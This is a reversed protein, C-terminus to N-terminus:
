FNNAVVLTKRLREAYGSAGYVQLDIVYYGSKVRNNSDNTGDWTFFSESGLLYHHALTRVLRGQSDFIRLSAQLGTRGAQYRITVYDARGDGSPMIVEPEMVLAGGALEGGQYRQSNPLGPTGYNVTSAASMWNAAQNTPADLNIRELSVGKTERVFSSHLSGSYGFEDIRLGEHDLLAISDGTNRFPPLSELQLLREPPTAPFATLVDDPRRTFVLLGEPPLILEERSILSVAKIGNEYTALQWHQLKIFKNSANAIEVWEESNALPDYMLENLVVDGPQAEEPVAITAQAHEQMILNGSCDTLRHFSLQYHGSGSISLPEALRILLRDSRGGSTSVHQIELNPRISVQSVSLSATDLAENFIALINSPDLAYAQLLRPGKLDPKIAAISNKAAPTGGATAVSASWNAEGGCPNNMDIRELSWGGAAKQSNGYWRQGYAVRDLLIGEPSYLSLVDAHNHLSPWPSLGLVPGYGELMASEKAPTLMVYAEPALSYAPLATNRSEDAFRVGSLEVTRGSANFIEIWEVHPLLTHDNPAAHIESILLDYTQLEYTDVYRFIAKQGEASSGDRAHVPGLSITYELGAQLPSTNLRLERPNDAHIHSARVVVGHDITFLSPNEASAQDLPQNFCLMLEQEAKPRASLLRFAAPKDSIQFQDILLRAATGEGEGRSVQLRLVAAPQGLVNEPIPLLYQQYSTNANPFTPAAGLLEAETFSEGGDASISVSLLAPRSGSGNQGSRAWFSIEGSELASADFYLNIEASFSGTPLIGLAAAGEYAYEPGAQYVRSNGSSLENAQWAPLFMGNIGTNFQDEFNQEYPYSHVQALTEFLICLLFFPLLSPIKM